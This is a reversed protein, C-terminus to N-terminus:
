PQCRPPPLSTASHYFVLLAQRTTSCVVYLMYPCAPEPGSSTMIKSLKYMQQEEHM